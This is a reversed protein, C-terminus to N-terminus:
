NKYAMRIKWTDADRVYIVLYHGQVDTGPLTLPTWGSRGIMPRVFMCIYGIATSQSLNATRAKGLRM